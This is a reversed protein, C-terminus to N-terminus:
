KRVISRINKRYEMPNMGTIKHFLKRFHKDDCYGVDEVIEMISLDTTSLLKQAERIRIDTLVDIYNEGTQEKFKRSFYSTSLGCKEAIGELSVPEKYHVKMYAIAKAAIEQDANIGEAMMHCIELLLMELEKNREYGDFMHQLTNFKWEPFISIQLNKEYEAMDCYVGWCFYSFTPPYEAFKPEVNQHFDLFWSNVHRIDGMTVYRILEKRKREPLFKEMDQHLDEIDAAYILREGTTFCYTKALAAEKLSDSVKIISDVIGGISLNAEFEGYREQMELIRKWMKAYYSRRSEMDTNKKYHVIGVLGYPEQHGVIIEKAVPLMRVILHTAEQLFHSSKSYLDFKSVNIVLVQYDGDGLNTGYRKNIEPLLFEVEEPKKLINSLLREMIQHNKEFEYAELKIRDQVMRGMSMLYELCQEMCRRFMQKGETEWFVRVSRYKCAEYVFSFDEKKILILFVANMWKQETNRVFEWLSELDQPTRMVILAAKNEEIQVSEWSDFHLTKVEYEELCPLTDIEKDNLNYSYLCLPRKM